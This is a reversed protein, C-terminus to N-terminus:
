GKTGVYRTGMFWVSAAGAPLGVLWGSVEGSLGALVGVIGVFGLLVFVFAVFWNTM